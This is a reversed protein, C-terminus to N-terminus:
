TVAFAGDLPRAGQGDLSVQWWLDRGLDTRHLKGRVVAGAISRGGDAAVPEVGHGNVITQHQDHPINFTV